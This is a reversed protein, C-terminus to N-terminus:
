RELLVKRLYPILVEQIMLGFGVGSILGIFLATFLSQIFWMSFDHSLYLQQNQLIIDSQSLNLFQLRKVGHCM